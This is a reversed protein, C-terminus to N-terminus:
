SRCSRQKKATPPLAVTVTVFANVLEPDTAGPVGFLMLSCICTMLPVACQAM